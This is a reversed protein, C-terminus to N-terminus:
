IIGATDSLKKEKSQIDRLKDEDITPVGTSFHDIIAAFQM